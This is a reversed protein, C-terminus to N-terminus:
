FPTAVLDARDATTPEFLSKSPTIVGEERNQTTLVVGDDTM